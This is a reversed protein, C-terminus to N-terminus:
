KDEYLIDIRVLKKTTNSLNIRYIKLFANGVQKEVRKSGYGLTKLMEEIAEIIEKM